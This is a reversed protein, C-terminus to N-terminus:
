PFINKEGGPKACYNVFPLDRHNRTPLAAPMNLWKQMRRPPGRKENQHSEEAVLGTWGVETGLTM